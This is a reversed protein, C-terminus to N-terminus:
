VAALSFEEGSSCCKWYAAEELPHRILCTQRKRCIRDCGTQVVGGKYFLNWYNRWLSDDTMALYSMDQIEKNNLSPIGLLNAVSPIFDGFVADDNADLRTAFVAIDMIRGTGINLKCASFAPNSLDVGNKGTPVVSNQSFLPTQSPLNLGLLSRLEGSHTHAYLHAAIVDAFEKSLGSYTEVFATMWNPEGPRYSQLSPPVHGALYVHAQADRAAELQRRLWAFQGFPDSANTAPQLSCSYVVSNLVVVRLNPVPTDRAYYGGHSFSAVETSTELLGHKLWVRAVSSLYPNPVSTAKETFPIETTVELHNVPALDNNGLVPILSPLHQDDDFQAGSIPDMKFAKSVQSATTNLIALVVDVVDEGPPLSEAGHRVFDGSLLVFSPPVPARKGAKQAAALAAEVLAVPSDCGARGIIPTNPGGACLDPRGYAGPTGYLPDLHIDSLWLFSAHPAEPRKNTSPLNADLGLATRTGELVRAESSESAQWETSGSANYSVAPPWRKSSATGSVLLLLLLRLLVGDKNSIGFAGHPSVQQSKAM